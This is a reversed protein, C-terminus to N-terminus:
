EAAVAQYALSATLLAAQEPTESPGREAMPQKGVTNGPAARGNALERPKIAYIDIKGSWDVRPQVGGYGYSRATAQTTTDAHATSTGALVAVAFLKMARRNAM